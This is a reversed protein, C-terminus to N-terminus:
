GRPPRTAITSSSRRASPRGSRRWTARRALSTGRGTDSRPRRRPGWGRRTARSAAASCTTRASTEVPSDIPIRGAQDMVARRYRRGGGPGLPLLLERVAGTDWSDLYYSEPSDHPFAARVAVARKFHDIEVRIVTRATRERLVPALEGALTTWGAASCGDIAVRVPHPREVALIREALQAPVRAHPTM